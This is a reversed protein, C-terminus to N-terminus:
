PPQVVSSVSSFCFPSSTDFITAVMSSLNEQKPKEETDEMDETTFLKLPNPKWAEGTFAKRHREL